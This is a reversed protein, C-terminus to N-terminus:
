YSKSKTAGASQGPLIRLCAYVICFMLRIGAAARRSGAEAETPNFFGPIEVFTVGLRANPHNFANDAEM